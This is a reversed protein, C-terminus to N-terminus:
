WFQSLQWDEGFDKRFDEVSMREMSDEVGFQLAGHADRSNSKAQAKKKKKKKKNKRDGKPAIADASGALDDAGSPSAQGDGNEASAQVGLDAVGRTLVEQAAARRRAEAREELRRFREQEQERQEQFQGLLALTDSPLQLPSSSTSSVSRLSRPRPSSSGPIPVSQASETM